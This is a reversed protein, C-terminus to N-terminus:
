EAAVAALQGFLEDRENLSVASIDVICELSRVFIMGHGTSDLKAGRTIADIALQYQAKTVAMEIRVTPVIDPIGHGAILSDVLEPQRGHGVCDSTITLDTLGASLIENEVYALNAPPILATIMPM